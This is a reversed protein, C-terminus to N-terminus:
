KGIDIRVLRCYLSMETLLVTTSLCFFFIVNPPWHIGEHYEALSMSSQYVLTVGILIISGNGLNEAFPPVRQTRLLFLFVVIQSKLYKQEQQRSDRSEDNTKKRLDFFRMEFGM